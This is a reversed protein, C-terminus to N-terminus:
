EPLAPTLPARSPLLQAALCHLKDPYTVPARAYVSKRESCAELYASAFFILERRLTEFQKEPTASELLRSSVGTMAAQLMTAVLQLDKTLPETALM